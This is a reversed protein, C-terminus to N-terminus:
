DRIPTGSFNKPSVPRSAVAPSCRGSTHRLAHVDVVCGNHDRVPIGAAALDKKLNRVLHLPIRFLPADAPLADPVPRGSRHAENRAEALKERLWDRLDDALDARLPVLAGRQAKEDAAALSLHPPDDLHVRGVTLSALEGKRLGTLVLTKYVLARERGSRELARRTTESLRAGAQGKRNGRNM